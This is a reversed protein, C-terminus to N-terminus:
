FGEMRPNSLRLQRVPLPPNSFCASGLASAQFLKGTKFYSCFSFRVPIKTEGILLLTIFESTSGQHDNCIIMLRSGDNLPELWADTAVVSSQRHFNKELEAQLNDPRVGCLRNLLRFLFSPEYPESRPPPNPRPPSPAKAM